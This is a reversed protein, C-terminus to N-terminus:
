RGKILAKLWCTFNKGAWLTLLVMKEIEGKRKAM